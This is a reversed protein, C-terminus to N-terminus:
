RQAMLFFLTDTVTYLEINGRGENASLLFFQSEKGM